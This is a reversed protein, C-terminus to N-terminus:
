EKLLKEAAVIRGSRDRIRLLYLGPNLSSVDVTQVRPDVFLISVSGNTGIVEVSLGNEPLDHLKILDQAPNPSFRKLTASKEVGTIPDYEQTFIAYNIDSTYTQDGNEFTNRVSIIYPFPRVASADTFVEVRTVKLVGSASTSDYTEVSFNGEPLDSKVEVGVTESAAFATFIKFSKGINEFINIYNSATNDSVSAGTEITEKLIIQLDRYVSGIRTLKENIRAYQDIRVAFLYEGAVFAGRFKNDWTILGTLKDISFGEPLQYNEVPTNKASLPTVVTYQLETEPSAVSAISASFPLDKYGFFIPNSFLAQPSDYETIFPDITFSTELYFLTGVSNNFNIIANNRNPEAYSVLYKGPSSYTHRITYSARGINEGLEEVPINQQEPILMSQGDGFDLRDQDGGFLVPAGGEMSTYITLTIDFTNPSIRTVRIEGCRLHTAFVPTCFFTLTLIICARPVTAM